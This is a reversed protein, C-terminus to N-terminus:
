AFSKIRTGKNERLIGFFEFDLIKRGGRQSTDLITRGGRSWFILLAGFVRFVHFFQKNPVDSSTWFQEGGGERRTWIKEGGGLGPLHTGTKYIIFRGEYAMWFFPITEQKRMLSFFTLLSPPFCKM